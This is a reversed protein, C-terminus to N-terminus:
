GLIKSTLPLCGAPREALHVTPLLAWTFGRAHGVKISYPLKKPYGDGALSAM